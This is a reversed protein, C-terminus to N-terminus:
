VKEKQILAPFTKLILGIDYIFSNKNAYDIDLKIREEESMDTKGRKTVQWLGTIGAASMFRMACDDKTLQQAEYLPLPRNGVISMDGKIVNILQPLEDLSTNRLFQGFKTIRPDDKIKFFVPNSGHDKVETSGGYQNLHMLKSLDKDAGNSMSRFKYFNFIKYGSGARQSIYFVPGKSELKIILAILLMIPSIILLVSGAVLLDFLRKHFSIKFNFPEIQLRQESSNSLKKFLKLFDIWYNLSEPNINNCLVDDAGNKLLKKKELDSFTPGVAVIPVGCKSLIQKAYRMQGLTAENVENVYYVVADPQNECSVDVLDVLAKHSNAVKSYPYFKSLGDLNDLASIIMLKKDYVPSNEESRSSLHNLTIADKM